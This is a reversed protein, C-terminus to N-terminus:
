AAELYAALARLLAPSDGAKGLTLNCRHCIWGRFEGTKHDHDWTMASQKKGCGPVECTDPRARGAALERERLVRLRMKRTAALWSAQMRKPNRKQWARTQERKQEETRKM